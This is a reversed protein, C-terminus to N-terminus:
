LGTVAIGRDTLIKAAVVDRKRDFDTQIRLLKSHPKQLFIILQAGENYVHKIEAKQIEIYDLNIAVGRLPMTFVIRDSYFKLTRVSHAIAWYLVFLIAPISFFLTFTSYNFGTHVLAGGMSLIFLQVVIIKMWSFQLTYLIEM